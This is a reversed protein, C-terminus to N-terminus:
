KILLKYELGAALNHQDGLRFDNVRYEVVAYVENFLRIGGQVEAVIPRTPFADSLNHDFTQDVFGSLYLRRDLGPVVWNFFHEIQWASDDGGAFRKFQWTVRYILGARSFFGSMGPTNHVRWGIGVQTVDNGDGDVIIGQLSLDVPLSDSIAWRLNQESRSFEFDTDSFAGRFNMYSFYSLRGPLRRWNIIATLDTDTKVPDLYPYANTEVSFKPPEQSWAITAVFLLLLM